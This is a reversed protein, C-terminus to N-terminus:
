YNGGIGFVRCAAATIQLPTARTIEGALNLPLRGKSCDLVRIAEFTSLNACGTALQHALSLGEAEDVLRVAQSLNLGRMEAVLAVCFNRWTQPQHHDLMAFYAVLKFAAKADAWFDPPQTKPYYHGMFAALRHCLELKDTYGPLGAAQAARVVAGYVVRKLDITSLSADYVDLRHALRMVDGHKASNIDSWALAHTKNILSELWEAPTANPKM